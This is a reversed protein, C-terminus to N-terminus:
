RRNSSGNAGSAADEDTLRALLELYREKEQCEAPTAGPNDAGIQGAWRRLDEVAVTRRGADEPWLAQRERFCTEAEAM